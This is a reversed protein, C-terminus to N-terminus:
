HMREGVIRVQSVIALLPALADKYYLAPPCRLRLAISHSVSNGSDTSHLEILHPHISRLNFRLRRLKRSFPDSVGPGAAMENFVNALDGLLDDLNAPRSTPNDKAPRNTPPPPDEARLDIIICRNAYDIVAQM